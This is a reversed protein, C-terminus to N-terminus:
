INFKHEGVGITRGTKEGPRPRRLEILDLVNYGRRQLFRIIPDNNPHVWNYPADSGLAQALKEAEAYLSSAIGQRRYAPLVYLSEAWVVDGVVRCVLYGILGEADGEAVFIPFGDQQYEAAEARAADLDPSRSAQHLQALEVRFRAILSALKEQDVPQAPRIRMFKEEV